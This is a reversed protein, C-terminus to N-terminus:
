AAGSRRGPRWQPWEARLGFFAGGSGSGATIRRRLARSLARTQWRVVWTGFSAVRRAALPVAAAAWTDQDGDDDDVRYDEM